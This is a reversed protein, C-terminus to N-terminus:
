LKKFDKCTTAWPERLICPYVWVHPGEQEKHKECMGESCHACKDAQQKIPAKNM